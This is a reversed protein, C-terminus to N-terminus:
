FANPLITLISNMLVVNRRCVQQRSGADPPLPLVKASRRRKPPSHWVCTWIAIPQRDQGEILIILRQLSEVPMTAVEDFLTGFSLNLDAAHHVLAHRSVIFQKNLMLEKLLRDGHRDSFVECRGSCDLSGTRDFVIRTSARDVASSTQEWRTVLAVGDIMLAAQTATAITPQSARCHHYRLIQDLTMRVM